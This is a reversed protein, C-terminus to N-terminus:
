KGEADDLGRHQAAPRPRRRPVRTTITSGAAVYAASELELPAVLTSNSGVFVGDGITTPHKAVGDYNCTITGAGVNCDAGLTANGLYALHNAKTGDGLRSAKTEVFNGVKVRAGLETGERLRAYPGVIAAEGVRAGHVHSFAEVVAGAGLEADSIVCHPGIRVGPGLVVRGEFVCGVDIECDEAAILEGRVDLRAPDRLTVGGRMLAEAIRHQLVRELRALQARDNVGAVEDPDGADVAVVEVGDDRAFGVVDTLYYEGQANRAELRGLWDALPAGPLVYLGSNIEDIARQPDSADKEEVIGTVAGDTGRLIRGLGTPDPMHVTVVGLAADPVEALLGRLTDASLLPVDAYLVVVRRAGELAPLASRLADGTGKQQQQVVCTVDPAEAAARVADGDPATVVVARDAVARAADLVRVLMPVGGLTHLVKPTASKMRTGKGAALVVAVTDQDM